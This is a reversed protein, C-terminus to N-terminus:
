PKISEVLKKLMRRSHVAHEPNMTMQEDFLRNVNDKYDAAEYFLAEWHNYVQEPTYKKSDKLAQEGFDERLESSQMLQQLKKRLDNVRDESSALLGNSEHVILENTGACDEFGISPVGMAMAELVCTPCGESLSATVHIASEALASFIDDTPGVILVQNELAHEAIFERIAVKHPQPGEATKGYVKLVWDPNAKALPEFAKLLTILNKNQKMGGINIIVKKGGGLSLSDQPFAPNAFGRASRKIYDPFSDVYRPMVLRIRHAASAVLEREWSCRIPHMEQKSGRPWSVNILREPNTCEQMGFPISTGHVVSYYKILSRNFYFVFYVDPDIHLVHHKLDELSKFPLLTLGEGRPYAPPGHDAYAIYVRHGKQSMANAMELAVREAGGKGQALSECVIVLKLSRKKAAARRKPADFNAVPLKEPLATSHALSEFLPAFYHEILENYDFQDVAQRNRIIEEISPVQQTLQKLIQTFSEPNNNFLYLRNVALALEEHAQTASALTPLGVALSEISKLSPSHGFTEDPVWAISADYHQMANILEKKTLLGKFRIKEELGLEAVKQKLRKADSGRGFLDLRLPQKLEELAAIFCELLAGIKRKEHLSGIYIFNQISSRAYFDSPNPYLSKDFGLPYEYIPVPCHEIWTRVSDRSLTVILDLKPAAQQAAEQINLRRQGQPLLPTKIDLVLKSQPFANNLQNILQPWDPFNFVYIIEPDFPKIKEITGQIDELGTLSKAPVWPLEDLASHVINKQAAPAVVLADYRKVFQKTLLYTGPTGQLGLPWGSIFCIRM